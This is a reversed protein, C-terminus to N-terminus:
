DRGKKEQLYINTTHQDRQRQASLGMKTRWDNVWTWKIEQEELNPTHPSM